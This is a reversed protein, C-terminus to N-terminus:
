DKMHQSANHYFCSARLLLFSYPPKPEADQWGQLTQNNHEITIVRFKQLMIAVPDQPMVAMTIFWSYNIHLSFHLPLFLPPLVPLHKPIVKPLIDLLSGQWLCPSHVQSFIKTGTEGFHLLTWTSTEAAWSSWNTGSSTKPGLCTENKM